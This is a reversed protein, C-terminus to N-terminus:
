GGGQWQRIAQIPFLLMVVNLTLNDRILFLLIIEIAIFLIISAWTPLRAALLFGIIAAVIDGVSNLVSDGYYDLSLTAARYREIVASSNEIIEWASELGIAALARSGLSMAPALLRLMLYFFLGHVVHTFTYPDSFQQSNESSQVNGSWFRVFGCECVLVRNMAIEIFATAAVILCGFAIDIVLSRGALHTRMRRLVLVRVWLLLASIALSILAPIIAAVM